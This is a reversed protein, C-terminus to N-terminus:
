KFNWISYNDNTGFSLLWWYCTSTLYIWSNKHCPVITTEITTETSWTQQYQQNSPTTAKTFFRGLETLHTLFQHCYTNSFLNPIITSSKFRVSYQLLQEIRNATEFIQVASVSVSVSVSDLVAPMKSTLMLRIQLYFLLYSQEQLKFDYCNLTLQATCMSIVEPLGVVDCCYFCQTNNLIFLNVLIFAQNCNHILHLLSLMYKYFVCPALYVAAYTSIHWIIQRCTTCACLSLPMSAGM